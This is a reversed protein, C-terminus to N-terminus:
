SAKRCAAAYGEEFILSWSSGYGDRMMQAMDGFAEWNSQTLEVRTRDAAVATFQVEVTSANEPPMGMHFDLRISDFPDYSRITGWLHEVGDNGLEVIQGGKKAEVSLSKATTGNKLSMARKDLPWWDPMAEIFTRFAMEQGCPVEIVNVVPALMM